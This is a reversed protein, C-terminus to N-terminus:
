YHWSQKFSLTSSFIKIEIDEKQEGLKEEVWVKLAMDLLKKPPALKIILSDQPLPRCARGLPTWSCLRPFNESNQMRFLDFYWERSEIVVFPSTLKWWFDVNKLFQPHTQSGLGTCLIWFLEPYLVSRKSSFFDSAASIFRSFTRFLEM